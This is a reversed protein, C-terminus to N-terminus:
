KGTLMVHCALVETNWQHASLDPSEAGLLVVAARGHYGLERYHSRELKVIFVIRVQMDIRQGVAHATIHGEGEISDTFPECWTEIHATVLSYGIDVGNWLDALHATQTKGVPYFVNNCVGATVYAFGDFYLVFHPIGNHATTLLAFDRESGIHQRCVLRRCLAALTKCTKEISIFVCNEM